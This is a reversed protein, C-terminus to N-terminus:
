QRATAAFGRWKELVNKMDEPLESEFHMWEGTKPHKFGLSRAHLAQRQLMDFCNKVFQQYKSFSPGKMIKDGGYDEDCFLTHGIHKMHVRIQHTRGTELKCEILTVYGFREIVKYHTVAHKGYTGTTYVDMLKRHKASRGISGIVTGDAEVDGWVLAMYRREVTHEFFQNSLNSLGEDTKAIVMLGTTKKDIRHVLGPRMYESNSVNPLNEFNYLLGNVLTGTYNGSGPHVVLGSQKNIIVVEDDEYVINLPIDEPLLEMERVPHPLEMTIIDGPKVRYNQKVVVGNAKIFGSKAAAQLRNRSTNALRDILFKDIREAGQGLGVEIKYHEFLDDSEEFEDEFNETM